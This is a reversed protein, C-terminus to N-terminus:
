AVKLLQPNNQFHERALEVSYKIEKKLEAIYSIVKNGEPLGLYDAILDNPISSLRKDPDELRNLIFDPTNLQIQFLLYADDSLTKQMFGLALSLFYQYTTETDSEPNTSIINEFYDIETIDITNAYQENKQAYAERMIRYKFTKLANIVHGKVLEPEMQDCYKNFVYIFKVDFWSLIEDSDVGFRRADIQYALARRLGETKKYLDNFLKQDYGNKMVQLRHEEM